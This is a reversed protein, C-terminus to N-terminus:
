HTESLLEEQAGLGVLGLQPKRALSPLLQDSCQTPRTGLIGEEWPHGREYSTRGAEWGEWAM